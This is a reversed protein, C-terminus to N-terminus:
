HLEWRDIGLAGIWFTDGMDPQGRLVPRLIDAVCFASGLELSLGAGILWEPTM